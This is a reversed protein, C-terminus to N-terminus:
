KENDWRKERVIFGAETIYDDEHSVTAPSRHPINIMPGAIEYDNKEIWLGLTNVVDDMQNYSGKFIITACLLEDVELCKIEDTDEFPHTVDSQVEVDINEEVFEEDHYVTMGYVPNTLRINNTKTFEYLKNWLLYEDHYSDLKLRLSM